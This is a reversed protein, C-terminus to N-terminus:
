GIVTRGPHRWVIFMRFRWVLRAELTAKTVRILIQKSDAGRVVSYGSSSHNHGANTNKTRWSEFLEAEHGQAALVVVAM